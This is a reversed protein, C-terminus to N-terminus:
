DLLNEYLIRYDGCSLIAGDTLLMTRRLPEGNLAAEGALLSVTVSRRSSARLCLVGSWAPLRWAGQGGQGIRVQRRREASLDRPALSPTNAPVAVPTLQGSLHAGQRWVVLLGLVSLLALAALGVVVVAWWPTEGGAVAPLPGFGAAETPIIVSTPNAFTPTATSTPRLTPTSTPSYTPTPTPPSTPTPLPLRDQWVSVRGRGSLVVQWVGPRPRAIRWIEERGGEPGTITLDIGGAAASRGDPDLVEVATVADNKWITLILAALPEKVLAEVVFPAGPTLLTTLPPAAEDVLSTMQRVIAHYIPLLDEAQSAAFMEGGPTTQALKTWRESWAAAVRRGCSSRTDGLLVIDLTVGAQALKGVATQLAQTYAAADYSGALRDPNPAPDGDTLLIILRRSDTQGSDHLLGQAAELALLHDTWRIPHPRSIADSLRQRAEADALDTLDAVKEVEGGFNLLALRYTASNDGGLYNIFLRAADSRLLEPDAGIGDCEWMSPSQDSVLVVEYIPPTQGEAQATRVVLFVAGGALLLLLLIFFLCCGCSRQRLSSFM